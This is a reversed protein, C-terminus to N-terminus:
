DDIHFEPPIRDIPLTFYFSAGGEPRNSAWIQGEHAEVIAKCITLGLGAGGAPASKARYFKEFLRTEDGMPLGVGDDAVEVLLDPRQDDGNQRVCISVTIATGAPTYCIANEILNILVQRVLTEDYRILPLKPAIKFHLPHDSQRNYQAAVTVIVEDITQWVKNPRVGGSEIRTMDLLNGVLRNLRTSEEYAIQALEHRVETSLRSDNELLVSVAGTVSTLPTRIDQSISSLLSNRSVDRENALKIQEAAEAFLSREIAIATQSALARILQKDQSGAFSDLQKPYIGLVGITGRSTNLPLYLGFAGPLTRTSLGAEQSHDFVWQVIGMEQPNLARIFASNRNDIQPTLSSNRAPLFILVQAKLLENLHQGALDILAQTGTSNAYATSLTYLTEALHERERATNTEEKIHVTLGSAILAIAIMLADTLIYQSTPVSLTQYIVSTSLSIAVISFIASLLAPGRGLRASIIIGCSYILIINTYIARSGL